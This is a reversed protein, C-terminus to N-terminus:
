FVGLSVVNLHNFTATILAQLMENPFQWVGPQKIFPCDHAAIVFFHSISHCFWINHCSLILHVAHVPFQVQTETELNKLFIKLLFYQPLKWLCLVSFLIKATNGNLSSDRFSVVLVAFTEPSSWWANSVLFAGLSIKITKGYCYM